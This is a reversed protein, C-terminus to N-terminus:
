EYANVLLSPTLRKMQIVCCGSRLACVEEEILKRLSYRFARDLEFNQHLQGVIAIDHVIRRGVPGLLPRQQLKARDSEGRRHRIARVFLLLDDEVSDRPEIANRRRAVRQELHPSGNIQHTSAAPSGSGSLTFDVTFQRGAPRGCGSPNALWPVGAV